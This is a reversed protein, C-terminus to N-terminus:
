SPLKNLSSQIGNSFVIGPSGSTYPVLFTYLITTLVSSNRDIISVVVNLIEKGNSVDKFYKITDIEQM